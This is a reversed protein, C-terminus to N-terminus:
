ITYVIIKSKWDFSRYITYIIRNTEIMAVIMMVIVIMKIIIRLRVAFFVIMSRSFLDGNSHPNSGFDDARSGKENCKKRIAIIKKIKSTSIVRSRGKIIEIFIFLIREYEMRVIAKM